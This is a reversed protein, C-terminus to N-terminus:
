VANMKILNQKLMMELYLTTDLICKQQDVAYKIVLLDILEAFKMPKDLAKWIFYGTRNIGIYNGNEIDMIVLEEDLENSMLNEDNRQILTEPVLTNLM